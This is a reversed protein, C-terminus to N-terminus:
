ESTIRTNEIEDGGGEDLEADGELAVARVAAKMTDMMGSPARVKGKGKEKNKGKGMKSPTIPRDFESDVEGEDWDEVVGIDGMTLGRKLGDADAGDIKMQVAQHAAEEALAEEEASKLQAQIADMQAAAQARLHEVKSLVEQKPPAPITEKPMLMMRGNATPQVRPPAHPHPLINPPAENGSLNNLGLGATASSACIDRARGGGQHTPPAHNHDRAPSRANGGPMPAGGLGRGGRVDSGGRDRGRVSANAERLPASAEDALSEGDVDRGAFSSMANSRQPIEPPGSWTGNNPVPQPPLSAEDASSEGNMYRGGFSNMEISRRPRQPPGSWDGNKPLSLKRSILFPAGRGRGRQASPLGGRGRNIQHFFNGGRPLDRLARQIFSQRPSPRSADVGASSDSSVRRRNGQTPQMFGPLSQQRQVRQRLQQPFGFVEPSPLGSTHVSASTSRRPLSSAATLDPQQPPRGLLHASHSRGEGQRVISAMTPKLREGQEDDEDDEDEGTEDNFNIPVQTSRMAPRAGFGATKRLAAFPCGDGFVLQRGSSTQDQNHYFEDGDYEEEDEVGFRTQHLRSHRLRLESGERVRARRHRLEAEPARGRGMHDNPLSDNHHAPSFAPTFDERMGGQSHVQQHFSPMFSQQGLVRRRQENLTIANDEEQKDGFGPLNQWSNNQPQPLLGTHPHSSTVGSADNRTPPRTFPTLRGTPPRATDPFSWEDEGDDNYDDGAEEFSRLDPAWLFPPGHRAPRVQNAPRGHRPHFSSPVFGADGGEYLHNRGGRLHGIRSRWNEIRNVPPFGLLSERRAAGPEWVFSPEQNLSQPQQRFRPQHRPQSMSGGFGGFNLERPWEQSQPQRSDDHQRRQDFFQEFGGFGLGQNQSGLRLRQNSPGRRGPLGLSERPQFGRPGQMMLRNFGDTAARGLIPAQSFVAQRLSPASARRMEPSEQPERKRKFPSCGSFHRPSFPKGKGLNPQLPLTGISLGLIDAGREEGERPEKKFEEGGEEQARGVRRGGEAQRGFPLTRMNDLRSTHRNFRARIRDKEGEEAEDDGENPDDHSWMM